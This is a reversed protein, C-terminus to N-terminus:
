GRTVSVLNCVGQLECMGIISLNNSEHEYMKWKLLVLVEVICITHTAGRPTQLTTQSCNSTQSVVPRTVIFHITKIKGGLQDLM